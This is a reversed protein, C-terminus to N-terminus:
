LLFYGQNIANALQKPPFVEGTAYKMSYFSMVSHLFLFLHSTIHKM